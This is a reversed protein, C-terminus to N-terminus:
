AVAPPLIVAGALGMACGCARTAGHRGAKRRLRGSRKDTKNMQTRHVTGVSPRSTVDTRSGFSM